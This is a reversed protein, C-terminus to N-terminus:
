VIDEGGFNKMSVSVKAMRRDIYERVRMIQRNKGKYTMLAYFISHDPVLIDVDIMEGVVKLGHYIAIVHDVIRDESLNLNMYIVKIVGNSNEIVINEDDSVLTIYGCKKTYFNYYVRDKRIFYEMRIYLKDFTDGYKNLDTYVRRYAYREVYNWCEETTRFKRYKPYPYLKTIREVDEWKDCVTHIGPAIVAYPM